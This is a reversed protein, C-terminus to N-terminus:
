GQADLFARWGAFASIDTAGETGAAEALFGTVTRGDALRV